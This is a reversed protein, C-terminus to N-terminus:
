FRTESHEQLPVFGCDAGDRLYSGANSSAEARVEVIGELILANIRKGNNIGSDGGGGGSRIAAM